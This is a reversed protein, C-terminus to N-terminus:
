GGIQLREFRKIAITTGLEKAVGDVFQQVTKSPDKVYDQAVLARESFFKKMRGAVMKEAIDQPKGSDMAQKILIEKESEVTAADIGDETVALPAPDTAVIHMCVDRLLSTVKEDGAKSADAVDVEVLAGSKGDFHSYVGCTGPYRVVQQITMNERVANKTDDLIQRVSTGDVVGDLIQDATVAEGDIAMASKLASDALHVFSENRATFDTECTVVVATGGQNGEGVGVCVKGEFTERDTRKAMKAIGRERLVKIAAEIDGNSAELAAKCEMMPADTRERLEKVDKASVAM